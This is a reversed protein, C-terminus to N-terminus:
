ALHHVVVIHPGRMVVGVNRGLVTDAIAARLTTSLTLDVIHPQRVDPNSQGWLELESDQLYWRQYLPTRQVM